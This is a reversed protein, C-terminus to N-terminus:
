KCGPQPPATPGETPGATPAATPPAPTDPAPLFYNMMKCLAM